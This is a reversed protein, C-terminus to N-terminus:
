WVHRKVMEKEFTFLKKLLVGNWLINYYKWQKASDLFLIRVVLIDQQSQSHISDNPSAAYNIPTPCM